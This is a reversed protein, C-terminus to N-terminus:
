AQPKVGVVILSNHTHFSFREVFKVLPMLWEFLTM